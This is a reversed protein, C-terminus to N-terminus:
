NLNATKELDFLHLFGPAFLCKTSVLPFDRSIKEQLCDRSLADSRSSGKVFTKSTLIEGLKRVKVQFLCASPSQSITFFVTAEKSFHLQQGPLEPTFNRLDKVRM